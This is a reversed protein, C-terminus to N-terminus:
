EAAGTRRSATPRRLVLRRGNALRQTGQRGRIGVQALVQVVVFAFQAGEHIEIEVVIVNAIQLVILSRHLILSVSDM